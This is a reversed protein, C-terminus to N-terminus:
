PLEILKNSTRIEQGLLRGDPSAKRCAIYDIRAKEVWELDVEDARPADDICATVSSLLLVEERRQKYTTDDDSETTLGVVLATGLSRAQQFFRVTEFNMPSTSCMVYVVRRRLKRRISEFALLESVVLVFLGVYPILWHFVLLSSGVMQLTQKTKGVHSAKIASSDEVLGAPAQVGQALVYSTTRVFASASEMLILPWLVIFAITSDSLVSLSFIWFPVVFCKDLVADVYAGYDRKLRRTVHSDTSLVGAITDSDIKKNWYRAIVGDLFDLFDNLLVLLAPVLSWNYGWLYLTPVILATRAFTVFNASCWRPLGRKELVNNISVNLWGYFAEHHEILPTVILPLVLDLFM